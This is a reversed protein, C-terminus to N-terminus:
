AVLLREDLVAAWRAPTAAHGDILGVPLGTALIAAPSATTATGDLAVADVGGIREAWAVVDEPKRQADVVAWVAAPELADLVHRTWGTGRVSSGV